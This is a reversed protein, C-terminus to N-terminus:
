EQRVGADQRVGRCGSCEEPPPVQKEAAHTSYGYSQPKLAVVLKLLVSSSPAAFEAVLTSAVPRCHKSILSTNRSPADWTSHQGYQSYKLSCRTAAELPSFLLADKQILYKPAPLDSLSSFSYKVYRKKNLFQM